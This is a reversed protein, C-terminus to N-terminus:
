RKYTITSGDLFVIDVKSPYGTKDVGINQYNSRKISIPTKHNKECNQADLKNAYQYGCHECAYLTIQKM